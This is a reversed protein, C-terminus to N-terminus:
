KSLLKECDLKCKYFKEGWLASYKEALSETDLLLRYQGHLNNLGLEKWAEDKLLKHNKLCYKAYKIAQNANYIAASIKSREHVSKTIETGIGTIKIKM